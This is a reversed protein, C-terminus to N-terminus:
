RKYFLIIRNSNTGDKNNKVGWINATKTFRQKNILLAECHFGADVGIPIVLDEMKITKNRIEGVEFAVWGGPNTIRYLEKFVNGMMKKWEDANRSIRISNAVAKADFGNFWCRLWNDGYYDITDLFHPSTITLNVSNNKIAGTSQADCNLFKASSSVRKLTKIQDKSLTRILSKSKKLIIDCVNRYEPKQNLKNNIRIQSQPSTAQNPPLTYVSFFGKSHGTLRNTAVMQIWRDLNDIKKEKLRNLLYSRLSLIEVLTDKHYFMSLDINSKLRKNIKISDLRHKLLDLDPIHLRAEGIIRSLPNIDNAIIKRGSLAAELVTTCRGSFPDYVVDGPKTLWQIFFNPLEAKFCARYSVEHISSSQRQKATWFEGVYRNVSTNGVSYTDRYPQKKITPHSKFFKSVTAVM